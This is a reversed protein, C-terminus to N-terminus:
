LFLKFSAYVVVLSLGAALTGLLIITSYKRYHQYGYTAVLAGYPLFIAIHRFTFTFLMMSYFIAFCMVLHPHERRRIARYAGLALYPLFFYHILTGAGQFKEEFRQGLFPVPIILGYATRLALGVPGSSGFVSASMGTTSDLIYGTYIDAYSSAREVTWKTVAQHMGAGVVMLLVFLRVTLPFSFSGYKRVACVLDCLMCLLIVGVVMMERMEWLPYALALAWSWAVLTSMVCRRHFVHDWRDVIWLCMLSILIDRFTHAAVFTMIPLLGVARAVNLAMRPELRNHSAIRFVLVSILALAWANLYKPILTSYGGFAEGFRWLLSVVYVYGVSNHFPSVIGGRISTYNLPSLTEAVIEADREYVLDDSGGGYYPLDYKYLYVGHIGCAILINAAYVLAFLRTATPGSRSALYIGGGGLLLGAALSSPVGDVIAAGVLCVVSVVILALPVASRTGSPGPSGSMPEAVFQFSGETMISDPELAAAERM